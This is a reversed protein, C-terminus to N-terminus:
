HVSVIFIHSLLGIWSQPSASAGRHGLRSHTVSLSVSHSVPTSCMSADADLSAVTRLHQRRGHPPDGDEGEEDGHGGLRPAGPAVGVEQNYTM